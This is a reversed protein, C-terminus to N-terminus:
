QEIQLRSLMDEQFVTFDGMNDYYANMQTEYADATKDNGVVDYAHYLSLAEFYKTTADLKKMTDTTVKGAIEKKYMADLASTYNGYRLSSVISQEDQEYHNFWDHLESIFGGTFGILAVCLVVIIVNLLTDRVKTM